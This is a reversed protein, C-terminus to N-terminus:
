RDSRSYFALQEGIRLGEVPVEVQGGRDLLGATLGFDRYEAGAHVEFTIGAVDGLAADLQALVSESWRRRELRGKTKLTEDYPEVLTTPELLGHKASLVFWRDCTREVYRRRGAFLTSVYLDEATSATPQKAKVCGVLGVRVFDGYSLGIAGTRAGAFFDTGVPTLAFQDVLEGLTPPSGTTQVAGGPRVESAAPTWSM